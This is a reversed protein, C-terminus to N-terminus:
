NEIPPIKKGVTNLAVLWLGATPLPKFITTRVVHVRRNM